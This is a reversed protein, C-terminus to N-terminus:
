VGKTHTHVRACSAHRPIHRQGWHVGGRARQGRTLGHLWDWSRWTAHGPITPYRPLFANFFAVGEREREERVGFVLVSVDVERTPKKLGQGVHSAGQDEFNDGKQVTWIETWQVDSRPRQYSHVYDFDCPDDFMLRERARTSDCTHNRTWTSITKVIVLFSPLTVVPWPGHSWPTPPTLSTPWLPWTTARALSLWPEWVHIISPEEKM